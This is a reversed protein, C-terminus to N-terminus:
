GFATESTTVTCFRGISAVSNAHEEASPSACCDELLVV